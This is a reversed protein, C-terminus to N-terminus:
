RNCSVVAPEAPKTISAPCSQKRMMAIVQEDTMEVAEGSTETKGVAPESDARRPSIPLGIRQRYKSVTSAIASVAVTIASLIGLALNGGGADLRPM